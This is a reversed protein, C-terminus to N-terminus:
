WSLICIIHVNKVAIHVYHFFWMPLLELFHMNVSCVKSKAHCIMAFYFSNQRFGVSM